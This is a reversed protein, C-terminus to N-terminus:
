LEGKLVKEWKDYDCRDEYSVKTPKHNFIKDVDLDKLDM